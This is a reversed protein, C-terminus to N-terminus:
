VKDEGELRNSIRHAVLIFVILIAAVLVAAACMKQIDLAVFWNNFLHQLMYISSNPYNGAVLYAERFVKFSNVLSLVFLTFVTPILSPMTIYRFKKFAGAGDIAAAEYLGASIGNIGALWLVMDYGTNKWLYSFVLVYFAKSSNMWDTTSGGFLVIARNLFGNASFVLKWMLVVSAVPIGMTLLFTTKFFDQCKKLGNILTSVFLSFALLLSICILMFRGTNIAALRFADNMIVTQYNKLGVFKGSMAEFFSRRVADLLPILIFITVGAVSPLLFLWATKIEKMRRKSIYRKSTRRLM